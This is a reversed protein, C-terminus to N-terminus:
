RPGPWRGGILAYRMSGDLLCEGYAGCADLHQRFMAMDALGLFDRRLDEDAYKAAEQFGEATARAMPSLDEHVLDQFGVADLVELYDSARRLPPIRWGV